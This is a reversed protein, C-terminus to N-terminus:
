LFSWGFTDFNITDNVIPIEPKYEYNKYKLSNHSVKSMNFTNQLTHCSQRFSSQGTRNSKQNVMGVILQDTVADLLKVAAELTPIEIEVDEFSEEADGKSSDGYNKFPEISTNKTKSGFM